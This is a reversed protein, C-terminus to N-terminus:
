ISKNEDWFLKSANPLNEDGTGSTFFNLSTFKDTQTQQDTGLFLHISPVLVKRMSPFFSSSFSPLTRYRIPQVLAQGMYAFFGFVTKVEEESQRHLAIM